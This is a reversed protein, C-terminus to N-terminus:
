TVLPRAVPCITVNTFQDPYRSLYTIGTKTIGANDTVIFSLVKQANYKCDIAILPRDGPVMPKSRLLLYSCGPWDKTLKEITEKCFGRTNTKAMGIVKAGVEMAAEAAKKSAFWSDFLFCNKTGWKIYKQGIGKTAETIRKTCAATAGLDKQYKIHKIGEKGRQVEILILAGTFSCAVTKFETGLPEPNRLIDSLHPLNGKTTTRFRIASM